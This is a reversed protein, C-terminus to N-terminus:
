MGLGIGLGLSMNKGATGSSPGGQDLLALLPRIENAKLTHGVGVTPGSPHVSDSATYKTTGNCLWKFRDTGRCADNPFVMTFDATSLSQNYIDIPGGSGWNAVTTQNAENQWLSDSSTARVGLQQVAVKTIGNAICADRLAKARTLMTAPTVGTGTATFDNTGAEILVSNVNVDYQQMRADSTHITSASGYISMNISAVPNSTGDADVQASQWYGRGVKEGKTQGQGEPISDGKVMRVPKDAGVFTGLVIPCFGSTRSLFAVGTATYVGTSSTSSITTDVPSYWAFQCGTLDQTYRANDPMKGAVPVSGNGKTWFTAGVTFQSLGFQSPYLYDSTVKAEGDTLIRTGIGSFLVPVFFGNLEMYMETITVINGTNNVTNTSANGWWNDFSLRIKDRDGSGVIHHWRAVWNTRPNAGATTGGTDTANAPRNQVTAILETM